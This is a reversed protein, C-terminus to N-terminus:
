ETLFDEVLDMLHEPYAQERCILDCFRQLRRYDDTIDDAWKLWEGNKDLMAIGYTRIKVGEEDMWSTPYIAYVWEQNTTRYITKQEM